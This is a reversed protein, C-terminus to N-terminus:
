RHLGGRGEGREWDGTAVQSAFYGIGAGLVAGALGTLIRNRLSPPETPARDFLLAPKRIETSGAEAREPLQAAVGDAGLISALAVICPILSNRM